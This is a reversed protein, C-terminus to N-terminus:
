CIILLVCEYVCLCLARVSLLLCLCTRRPVGSDSEFNIRCLAPLFARVWRMTTAMDGAIASALNDVGADSDLRDLLSGRCGRRATYSVEMGAVVLVDVVGHQAIINTCIEDCEEALSVNGGYLRHGSLRQRPMTSVKPELCSTATFDLSNPNYDVLALHCGRAALRIATAYGASHPTCGLVVAVCGHLDM